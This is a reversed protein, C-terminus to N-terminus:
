KHLYYDLTLMTKKNSANYTVTLQEGHLYHYNIRSKLFETNYTSYSYNGDSVYDYFCFAKSSYICMASPQVQHYDTIDNSILTDIIYTSECFGIITDNSNNITKFRIEGIMANKEAILEYQSCANINIMYTRGSIFKTLATDPNNFCSFIIKDFGTKNIKIRHIISDPVLEEGNINFNFKRDNLLDLRTFRIYAYDNSQSFGFTVFQSFLIITLLQKM